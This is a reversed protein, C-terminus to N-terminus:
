NLKDIIAQAELKQAVSGRELVEEAIAKAAPMDGMDIYAKALDIKTEFEDMDTLDSVEAKNVGQSVSDVAPVESAEDFGFDFDFDNNEASKKEPAESETSSANIANFDFTELGDILSAEKDDAPEISEFQSLDFDIGENDDDVKAPSLKDLEFGVPKKAKNENEDNPKSIKETVNDASDHTHNTLFNDAPIETADFKAQIKDASFLVSTPIFNIDTKKGASVLESAYDEFGAENESVHFVELLKLKYEDKDPHDVIAQRMLEEAQQYRGYALYVDAESSPDVEEQGTEFVDIDGSAFESLFSSEGVTGVDYSTEKDLVPPTVKEQTSSNAGDGVSSFMSSENIEEEVKRKRRFLWAFGLLGFFGAALYFYNVGLEPEDPKKDNVTQVLKNASPMKEQESSMRPAVKEPEAVSAKTAESNKNVLESNELEDGKDVNLAGEESSTQKVKSGQTYVNQIAALQQDKIAMMEQMIAFQKELNALREQLQQNETVLNETETSNATLATSSSIVEDSPPVLTLKSSTDQEQQVDPEATPASIEEIRPEPIAKGEWIAMQRQFQSHAQQKSIKVVDVKAPIKLTKGQMLANVNQKYFAGPNAKYLAMMMQEVSVDNHQNVRAAVKWLTDNRSTPGFEGEVALSSFDNKKVPAPVATPAIYRTSKKQKLVPVVTAPTDAVQHQYVVPPDVLVTFEKYLDGKPWSVEILFDLIPEQLIKESTMKIVVKGNSKVIPKFKVKSIFYSWAIGLKDFEDATALSVQIDDIHEGASLSLAIEANLKQNLASHLQIDGIGLSHAAIPAM